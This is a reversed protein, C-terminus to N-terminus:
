SPPLRCSVLAAIVVQYDGPDQVCAVDVALGQQEVAAAVDDSREGGTSLRRNFPV